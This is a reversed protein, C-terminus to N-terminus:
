GPGASVGYAIVVACRLVPAFTIYIVVVSCLGPETNYSVILVLQHEMVLKLHCVYLVVAGVNLNRLLFVINYVLISSSDIELTRVKRWNAFKIAQGVIRLADLGKRLPFMVELPKNPPPLVPIPFKASCFVCNHVFLSVSATAVDWATMISVFSYLKLPRMLVRSVFM